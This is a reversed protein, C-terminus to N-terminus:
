ETAGNGAPPSADDEPTELTTMDVALVWAALAGPFMNPEARKKAVYLAVAIKPGTGSDMDMRLYKEAECIEGITLGEASLEQGDVVFRM